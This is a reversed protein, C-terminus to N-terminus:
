TIEKGVELVQKDIDTAILLDHLGSLEQIFFCQLYTFEATSIGKM